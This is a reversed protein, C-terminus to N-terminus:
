HKEYENQIEQPEKLEKAFNHSAVIQQIDTRGDAQVSFSPEWQFSKM